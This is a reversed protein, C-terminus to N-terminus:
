RILVHNGGMELPIDSITARDNELTVADFAHGNVAVEVTGSGELDLFTLAEPNPVDLNTELNKRPSPSWITHYLYIEDSLDLGQARWIGAEDEMRQWTLLNLIPTTLMREMSPECREVMERHLGEAVPGNYVYVAKPYGSSNPRAAPVAEGALLSGEFSQGLNALLRNSLRGFRTRKETSPAFQNFLVYGAGIAVRGLAVASERKEAYLFRSLTHARLAESRGGYVMLERLCSETPTQLLTELGPAPQLFTEGVLFNTATPPTYSFTEIGCLDENSVGNLWRHNQTRVVQYVEGVDKTELDVGLLDSWAALAEPTANDVIVVRGKQAADHYTKLGEVTDGPVVLPAGEARPRYTVARLLLGHFLHRATPIQDLKETLRMQSALILGEGEQAEFLPTYDLTGSGFGGEGADLLPLMLRGDDKRYMRLAVYAENALLPYPDDGWAFLDRAEVGDLVPHDYSRVFAKLVPKDELPVNPFLSYTQAMLVLRGGQSVFDAVQRNQASGPEVTNREMILIDFDALTTPKLNDVYVAGPAMERLTPKLSGPGYVAIKSASLEPPIDIERKDIRVSRLWTDHVIDDVKFTAVYDYIGPTVDEPIQGAFVRSTVHGRDVKASFSAADIVRDARGLTVTLEGAVSEATDNVVFIERRFSDGAFYGSRLSRDIAALPRFANAQIPFSHNPTYGKGARWFSFESSYAPVQLPKVGPATPDEYGLHADAPEMRLNELCSLNWPGFCSVGLTRGAEIIWAADQAAAVDIAAFSAFVSDGGVHLTNNPGAYHYLAMEGSHLPRERDWWGVGACEKGYHRSIIPQTRENWLSSDGDHYAPRTPDLENFIARLKPLQRQIMEIEERSGERKTNWRMENEVSWLILSPHNKDRRVFRRVHDAAAEWYTPSSAAQAGGSGHLGAEGTILIGEEDALDLIIPPHPHTHLRSHNMNADRIMGFWQRTWGETYYYPTSKHGWDSFLHVPHDNLMIHPGEIWVERFGFREHSVELPVGAEWLDPKVYGAEVPTEGSPTREQDLIVTRVQYLKPHEPSWWTATDWRADLEVTSREGPALHVEARPLELTVPATSAPTGKPWDVVDTILLLERPRGSANTVEALVKVTGQRTSTRITIDSLYVDGREILWVDQWIGSHDCPIVNGTPVLARRREDREYNEILVAIENEGPKLEETIDSAFPLTPQVHDAVEEGNVFLRARPMLADFVLIYRRDGRVEDLTITRRVWASRTKSWKPPYGFADFLFEYDDSEFIEPDRQHEYYTEGRRRVGHTSKTWFSPVLYEEEHWDKEPVDIPADRSPAAEYLPLIDWWGNLCKKTVPLQAEFM